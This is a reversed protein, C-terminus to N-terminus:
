SFRPGQHWLGSLGSTALDSFRGGWGIHRPLEGLRPGVAFASWRQPGFARGSPRASRDGHTAESDLGDSGRPGEPGGARGRAGAPSAPPQPRPPQSPIIGSNFPERM